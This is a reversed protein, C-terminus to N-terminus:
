PCMPNRGPGGYYLEPDEVYDANYFVDYCNYEDSYHDVFDPIKLTASNDHIRMRLISSPVWPVSGFQGNGMQTKTHPTHGVTTSYVEGGWEVADANYIITTFLESPWYGINTKDGYQVWWNNTYPDKYVYITIQYPLGGPIPIPYIAAGLAIENSTQIFGPCTLDFCGTNKSGDATWYVFLRTNRDGYVSPNVAWGSEVLEYNDYSGTVLSVQATSYEDDKEVFPYCVQIDGKGGVFRFATAFLMAKSHNTLLVFSDVNQNVKRFSPKKRGFEDISPAKLLERKRIRRVPITGKPCSGSKQWVQQSTLKVYSKEDREKMMASKTKNSTSVTTDKKVSNYSPAMQIKHNKLAPHDFAPQKKIDICDIIDGDESKITKLSHKRLHQLKKEVELVKQRSFSDDNNTGYVTICLVLLMFIVKSGM